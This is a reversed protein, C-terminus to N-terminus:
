PEQQPPPSTSRLTSHKLTRPIGSITNIFQFLRLEFSIQYTSKSTLLVTAARKSISSLMNM